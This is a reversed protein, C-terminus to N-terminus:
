LGCQHVNLLHSFPAGNFHRDNLLANLRADKRRYLNPLYTGLLSELAGDGSTDGSLSVQAKQRDMGLTQVCNM